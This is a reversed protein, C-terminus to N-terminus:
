LTREWWTTLQADAQQLDQITMGIGPKVTAHPLLKTFDAEYGGPTGADTYFPAVTGKYNKLKGLFTRVPTSVKASWVPGGVLITDFQSLDPLSNTLQPLQGSALQQNAIDATAYMDSGFTTPAVTLNVLQAGTVQQLAAAMKATTGSWSYDVILVAAM